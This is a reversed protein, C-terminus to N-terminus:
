AVNKNKLYYAEMEAACEMANMIQPDIARNKKGAIRQHIWARIVGSSVPDRGLLIFIPENDRAKNWCSDQRYINEQKTM